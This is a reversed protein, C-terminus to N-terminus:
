ESLGFMLFAIGVVFLFIDGVIWYRNFSQFLQSSKLFSPPKAITVFRFTSTEALLFLVAVAIIGIGVLTLKKNM